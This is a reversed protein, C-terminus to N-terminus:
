MVTTLHYMCQQILMAILKNTVDCMYKTIMLIIHCIIIVYYITNLLYYFYELYIYLSTFIATIYYFLYKSPNYNLHSRWYSILLAIINVMLEVNNM